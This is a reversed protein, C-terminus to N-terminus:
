GCVVVVACGGVWGGVVCSCLCAIVQGLSAAAVPEPTIESFIESVPRGLEEQIVQLPIAFFLSTPLHPFM